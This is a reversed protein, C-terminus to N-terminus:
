PNRNCDDPDNSECVDFSGTEFTHSRSDFDQAASEGIAGTLSAIDGFETLEPTSYIKM